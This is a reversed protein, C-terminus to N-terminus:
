RPREESSKESTDSRDLDALYSNYEALTADDGASSAGTLSSASPTSPRDPLIGAPIETPGSAENAAKRREEPDVELVVFRRYAWLVAVAFAPWQLAYGLNQATGSSSEYRDWQWWALVLCATAAVVVLAILAPRHRRGATSSGSSM